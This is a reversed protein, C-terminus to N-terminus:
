IRNRKSSFKQSPSPYIRFVDVKSAHKSVGSDAFWERSNRNLLSSLYSTIYASFGYDIPWETHNSLAANASGLRSDHRGHRGHKVWCKEELHGVKGNPDCYFCVRKDLKKKSPLEKSNVQNERRSFFAADAASEGGHMKSLSEEKLLRTTLLPLKKKDDEVNEWASIVTKFSTPLTCLIKTIIQLETAPEGLDSLQHAMTEIETIHSMVDHDQQFSYNFFRQQLVFKNECAAQKYQRVLRDWMEKSSKCNILTRQYIEEITAVICCSASNDKQCWTKIEAANSVVFVALPSPKVQTGLVIEMLDHQKLVLSIKFKWFPFNSGNFKSIHSVDRTSFNTTSM